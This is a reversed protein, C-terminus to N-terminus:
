LKYAKMTHCWKNFFRSKVLAPAEKTLRMVLKMQDMNSLTKIIAVVEELQEEQDLAAWRIIKEHDEDLEAM